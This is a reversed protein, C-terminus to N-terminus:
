QGGEASEEEPWNAPAAPAITETEPAEAGEEPAGTEAVSEETAPAETEPSAAPRLPPQYAYLQPDTMLGTSIEFKAYRGPMVEALTALSKEIWETWIGAAILELNKEHVAIAKEEFPYAEEELVMEYDEVDSGSLDLPRESELLARSFEGYVQGIYYTAAATIEGIEYDVLGNMAALAKEMRKQKKQLSKDFPQTLQVVEFTQYELQALTLASKAAIARIGDTRQGGAKQDLAVITRLEALRLEDDGIRHYLDAMKSRTVVAPELPDTFDTVFRRYTRLAEDYVKAETYLEGAVLLAEGRLNPETAEEAVRLYEEAARAPSGDERYVFALQRTAKASLEHDPFSLRFSELVSAARTWNELAILAAGADYEAIPRIDSNPAVKAIRLYHDAAALHQDQEAAEEGQRYISAALNNTIEEAREDGYPTLELVEGYATEAEVFADSDFSAHAVVAWASRRIEPEAAPYQAILQRGASIAPALEALTYLDSAAAGLVAAAHEHGPFREVFRLTSEVAKRQIPERSAEDASKEHERHAFIAAYGAAASREHAEYGYAIREYEEAALSFDENELLLDALQYHIQPSEPEAPFSELYARYWRTGESFHGPKEDDVEATQYLSHYHNALDQLNTKLYSRVEPLSEVDHHKWYDAQLGYRAAFSKKSELVLKPFDGTEYIKVVRMSFSPAAKHIPYLDVFSQYASAADSYRLKELYFDGLNRYVRDEYSRPGANRFFSTVAPAGGLESFCLSMVRYTDAIRQENADDETQDFDYGTEVKHDLLAVYQTIAEELYMQKYLTWGLKYLALEYYDSAAGEDVIDQYAEEADFYKKRTFFYEARRFQIEDLHRSAPYRQVLLTAVEMAEDVQGLEDYARSKQYLVQDNHAYTPYAELIKDYLAIAELPGNASAEDGSPLILKERQSLFEGVSEAAARREFAGASETDRTSLASPGSPDTSQARRATRQPRELGAKSPSTSSEAREAQARTASEPGGLVGYEKELQLDALRRMAEPTLSSTPAEELFARYGAMAQAIGDTIEVETLDPEQSRLKALTPGTPQSACASLALAAFLSSVVTRGRARLSDSVDFPWTM